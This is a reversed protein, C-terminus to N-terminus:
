LPEATVQAILKQLQASVTHNAQIAQTVSNAVESFQPHNLVNEGFEWILVERVTVAPALESFTASEQKLRLLRQRLNRRLAEPDRIPDNATQTPTQTPKNGLKDTARSANTKELTLQRFIAALRNPDIRSM